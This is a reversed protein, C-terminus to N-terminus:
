VTTYLNECRYDYYDKNTQKSHSSEKASNHGYAPGSLTPNVQKRHTHTHTYSFLDSSTCPYRLNPRQEYSQLYNGRLLQSTIVSVCVCVDKPLCLAAGCGRGVCNASLVLVVLLESM